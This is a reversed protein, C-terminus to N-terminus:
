VTTPSNKHEIVWLGGHLFHKATHTSRLLVAEDPIRLPLADSVVFMCLTIGEETRNAAKFQQWEDDLPIINTSNTVIRVPIGAIHFVRSLLNCPM